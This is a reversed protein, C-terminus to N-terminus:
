GGHFVKKISALLGNPSFPKTIFLDAHQLAEKVEKPNLQKATQIVIRINKLDPEERIAKAAGLGDMEPMFIDMLIVDPRERRAMELCEVGNKAFLVRFQRRISMEVLRRIHEDDDVVLVTGLIDGEEKTSDKEELGTEVPFIKSIDSLDSLLKKINEGESQIIDLFEKERKQDMRAAGPEQILKTFGLISTISSRIKYQLDEAGEAGKQMLIVLIFFIIFAQAILLLGDIARGNKLVIAGIGLALALFYIFLVAQQNNLGLNNLRHHLHDKGVYAVWERFNSVKGTAFRAVTIYTMDFILIGLILAPMSYAKVPDNTAWGAMVTVSGLMFGMFNSGADGLFISAPKRARFNFPLFGLSSGLLAISLFMLFDQSSQIAVISIYFSAIITLGTALGDMGDLFNLSNTIGVIWIFTVLIEFFTFYWADPLFSLVVGHWCVISVAVLQAVLRAKASLGWTDDVLGALMILAGGIAIGKLSESFHFNFLVTLAFAAFVALGGWLPTPHTHVKRPDPEDVVNLRIALYRVLPTAAFSIFFSFLLLYLWHLATSDFYDRTWPMALLFLVVAPLVYQLPAPISHTM